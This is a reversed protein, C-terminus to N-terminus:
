PALARNVFARAFRLDRDVTPVSIELTQAIEERPMGAFSALELARAARADIGELKRLAEDLVVVDMTGHEDGPLNEIGGLTITAGSGLKRGAIIARARDVLISRMYLASVALFHTRNAFSKDTGLIRALAEHVLDTPDLTVSDSENRLRNLAIQRLLSYLEPMAPGLANKEGATWAQLRLTIEPNM